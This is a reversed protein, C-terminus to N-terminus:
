VKVHNKGLEDLWGLVLSGLLSYSPYHLFSHTGTRKKQTMCGGLIRYVLAPGDIVVAEGSLSTLVPSGYRSLATSLGKIGM